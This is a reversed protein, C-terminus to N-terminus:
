RMCFRMAFALLAILSWWARDSRRPRRSRTSGYAKTSRDNTEDFSFTTLGTCERALLVFTDEVGVRDIRSAGEAEVGIVFGGEARFL